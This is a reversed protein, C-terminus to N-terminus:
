SSCFPPSSVCSYQVFAPGAITHHEQQEPLQSSWLEPLIPRCPFVILSRAWVWSRREITSNWGRSGDSGTLIGRGWYDKLLDWGLDIARTASVRRYLTPGSNSSPRQDKKGQWGIRDSSHLECSGSCNAVLEGISLSTGAVSSRDKAPMYIHETPSAHDWWFTRSLCLGCCIVEICNVSVRTYMCTQVWPMHAVCANSTIVVTYQCM